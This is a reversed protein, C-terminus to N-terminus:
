RFQLSIQITFVVAKDRGQSGFYYILYIKKEAMEIGCNIREKM